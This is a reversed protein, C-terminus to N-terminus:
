RCESYFHSGRVTCLSQSIIEAIYCALAAVNQDELLEQARHKGEHVLEDFTKHQTREAFAKYDM